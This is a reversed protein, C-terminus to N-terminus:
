CTFLCQLKIELMHKQHISLLKILKFEAQTNNKKCNPKRTVKDNQPSLFSHISLRCFHSGPSLHFSHCDIMIVLQVWM